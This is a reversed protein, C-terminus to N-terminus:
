CKGMHYVLSFRKVIKIKIKKQNSSVQIIKSRNTRQNNINEEKHVKGMKYPTAATNNEKSKHSLM